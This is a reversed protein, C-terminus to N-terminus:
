SIVIEATLLCGDLCMQIAEEETPYRRIVPLGGEQLPPYVNIWFSTM